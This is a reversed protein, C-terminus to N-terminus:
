NHTIPQIAKKAKLAEKNQKNEEKAKIIAAKVDAIIKTTNPTAKANGKNQAVKAKMDAFQRTGKSNATNAKAALDAKNQKLEAEQAKHQSYPIGNVLPDAQHAKISATLAAPIAAKRSSQASTITISFLAIAFLFINKM